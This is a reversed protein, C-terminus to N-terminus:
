YIHATAVIAAFGAVLVGFMTLMMGAIRLGYHQRAVPGAGLARAVRAPAALMPVGIAIAVLGVFLQIAFAATMGGDGARRM